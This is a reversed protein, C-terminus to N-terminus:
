FKNFYGHIFSVCEDASLGAPGDLKAVLTALASDSADGLIFQYYWFLGRYDGASFFSDVRSSHRASGVLDIACLMHQHLKVLM